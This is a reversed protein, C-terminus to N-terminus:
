LLSTVKLLSQWQSPFERQNDQWEFKGYRHRLELQRLLKAMPKATSSKITQQFLRSSHNCCAFFIFELKFEAAQGVLPLPKYAGFDRFLSLPTQIRKLDTASALTSALSVIIELESNTIHRTWFNCVVHVQIYGAPHQFEKCGSPWKHPM